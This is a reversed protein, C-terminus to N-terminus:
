ESEALTDDDQPWYIAGDNSGNMQYVYDTGVEHYIITVDTEVYSGDSYIGTYETGDDVAEETDTYLIIFYDCDENEAIYNFYWDEIDEFEVSSSEIEIVSYSGIVDTGSGNMLDLIEADDYVHTEVETESTEVTSDDETEEDDDGTVMGILGLIVIIIVWFWWKKWIPKKASVPEENQAENKKKKAM